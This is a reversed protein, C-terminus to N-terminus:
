HRCGQVTYNRSIRLLDASHPTQGGGRQYWIHGIGQGAGLDDTSESFYILRLNLTKWKSNCYITRIYLIIISIIEKAKTCGRLPELGV